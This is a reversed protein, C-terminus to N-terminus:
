GDLDDVSRSVYSFSPRESVCLCRFGSPQPGFTAPEFGTAGVLGLQRRTGLTGTTGQNRPESGLQQM